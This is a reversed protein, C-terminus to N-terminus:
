RIMETDEDRDKNGPENEGFREARKKESKWADMKAETQWVAKVLREVSMCAAEAAAEYFAKAIRSEPLSLEEMSRYQLYLSGPRKVEAPTESDLQLQRMDEDSVPRVLKMAVQLEKLRNLQTEEGEREPDLEPDEAPLPKVPFMDLLEKNIDDEAEHSRTYTQQYWDMYQDLQENSMKFIDADTISSEQGKQLPLESGREALSSDQKCLEVWREWDYRLATPENLSRPHSKAVGSTFPYGLKTAFVVLAMLQAEPHSTANRRVRSDSSLTFTFNFNLINSMKKVAPYIELPLALQRIYQFLLHPSNIAPITMGFEKTYLVCIRYVTTQLQDHSLITETDLAKQYEGPLHAKM